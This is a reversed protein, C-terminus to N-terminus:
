ARRGLIADVAAEAIERPNTIAPYHRISREVVAVLEERAAAAEDVVGRLYVALDLVEEYADLAFSRGNFPQLLSGYRNLGLDRRALIDQIVERHTGPHDDRPVPLPQDGPRQRLPETETSVVSRSATERREEEEADAVLSDMLDEPAPQDWDLRRPEASPVATIGARREANARVGATSARFQEAVDADSPDDQAGDATRVPYSQGCHPCVVSRQDMTLRFVGPCGERAHLLEGARPNNPAGESWTRWRRESAPVEPAVHPEEVHGPTRFHDAALQCPYAAGSGEVRAGCQQGPPAYPIRDAV